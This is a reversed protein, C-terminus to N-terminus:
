CGEMVVLVEMVLKRFWWLWWYEDCFLDDDIMMGEVIV